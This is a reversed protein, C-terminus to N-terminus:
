NEEKGQMCGSVENNGVDIINRRYGNCRFAWMQQVSKPDPPLEFDDRVPQDFILFQKSAPNSLLNGSQEPMGAKYSNSMVYTPPIM